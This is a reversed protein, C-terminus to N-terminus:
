HEGLVAREADVLGYGQATIALGLDEATEALRQRVARADGLGTSYVLAAVGSVHPAAFSTGSRIQYGGKLGTTVLDAGPATLEVEPGMNSFWARRDNEDTAAVAIVEPYAAPFLVRDGKNGAAAILLVGARYAARIAEHLAPNDEETGLSMNIIEAGREVAWEIGRILDSISGQEDHRLIKIAWLSAKPAVGVLGQGNEAAALVGAVGTGHGNDDQPDEDGNILDIGGLVNAKLDPHKLDIGTDLLAVEVGEGMVGPHPVVLALTCGMLMVMLGLVMMGLFVGRKVRRRPVLASFGLLGLAGFGSWWGWSSRQSIRARHVAPARIREVGWSYLEVPTAEARLEVSKPTPFPSGAWFEPTAVIGDPAIYRVNPDAELRALAEESLRAAVADILTYAYRVRGGEEEIRAALARIVGQASLGEPHKLGIIVPKEEAKLSGDVLFGWVLLWGLLCLLVKVSKSGRM